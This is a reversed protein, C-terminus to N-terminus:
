ATRRLSSVTRPGPRASHVMQEFIRDACRDWTLTRARRLGHRALRDRQEDDDLLRSVARSLESPDAPRVLLGNVGDEVADPIGVSRAGIVATGCAGAELFVLGFGEVCGDREERAPMAFVDAASYYIPLDDRPVRGTFRVRGSDLLPGALAELRQRDPGDGVVVYVLGPHQGDIRRLAEIVTDVGKRPVLRAATLLVPRGGLGLRQKATVADRPSFFVCDVGNQVTRIRDPAVGCGRVLGATYESVPFVASAGGLASRRLARELPPLRDTRLERGHAAVFYHDILGMGRAALSGIATTWQGHFVVRTGTAAALAPISVPTSLGFASTHGIPYRMVPFPQGRDFAAADPHSPAVVTLRGRAGLETALQHSYEQIGGAVPPFDQAVFLLKM